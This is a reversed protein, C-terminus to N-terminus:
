FERLFGGRKVNLPIHDEIDLLWLAASLSGFTPNLAPDTQIWNATRWAFEYGKTSVMNAFTPIPLWTHEQWLDWAEEGSTKVMTISTVGIAIHDIQAERIEAPLTRRLDGLRTCLMPLFRSRPNEQLMSQYHKQAERLAAGVTKDTHKAM